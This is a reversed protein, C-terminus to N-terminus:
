GEAAAPRLTVQVSKYTPTNSGRATSDLPVLVNAEPFYTAVCGRPIPYTLARFGRVTRLEEAAAGPVRFHSVLDVPAGERLGLAALDAENVLVVRREDAVGRYRDQM